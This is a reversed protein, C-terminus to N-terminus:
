IAECGGTISPRSRGYIVPGGQVRGGGGGGGDRWMIYQEVLLLGTRGALCVCLTNQVGSYLRIVTLIIRSCSDPPIIYIRIGSLRFTQTPNHAFKDM